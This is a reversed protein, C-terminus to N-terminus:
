GKIFQSPNWGKKQGNFPLPSGSTEILLLWSFILIYFIIWCLYEDVERPWFVFKSKNWNFFHPGILHVKM